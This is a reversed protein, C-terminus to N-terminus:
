AFVSSFLFVRFKEERCTQPPFRWERCFCFPIRVPRVQHRSPENRLRRQLRHERLQWAVVVRCLQEGLFNEAMSFNICRFLTFILPVDIQVAHFNAACRNLM